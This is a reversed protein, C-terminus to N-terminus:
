VSWRVLQSVLDDQWGVATALMLMGVTATGVIQLGVSFRGHASGPVLYLVSGLLVLPSLVAAGYIAFLVLGDAGRAPLDGLLDGFDEGVCPGWLFATAGGASLGAGGVLWASRASGRRQLGRRDLAAHVLLGSLSGVLLAAVALRPATAIRGSFRLWGVLIVALGYGALGLSGIRRGALGVAAGPALLILSCPLLASAFGEYVLGTM